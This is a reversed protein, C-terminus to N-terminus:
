DDLPSSLGSCKMFSHSCVRKVCSVCEPSQDDDECQFRCNYAACESLKGFCDGCNPSLGEDKVMCKSTCDARGLCEKGCKQLAKEVEAKKTKWIDNDKKNCQGGEIVPVYAIETKQNISKNRNRLYILHFYCQTIERTIIESVMGVKQQECTVTQSIQISLTLLGNEM